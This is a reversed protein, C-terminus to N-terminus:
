RNLHCPTDPDDDGLSDLENLRHLFGDFPASGVVAYPAALLIAQRVQHDWPRVSVAIGKDADFTGDGLIFKRQVAFDISHMRLASQVIMKVAMWASWDPSEMRRAGAYRSFRTNVQPAGNHEWTWHWAVPELDIAGVVPRPKVTQYSVQRAFEFQHDAIFTVDWDRNVASLLAPNNKERQRPDSGPEFKQHAMIRAGFKKVSHLFAQTVDEDDADPGQMVLYDRWKKSVLMQVLADMLQARSPMVHVIEASCVNRRLSDEPASVNFLLVDKGKVAAALAAYSERPADILFFRVGQGMADQVSQAIADPTKATLRLLSFEAGISRRLAKADEIGVQAGAFPHDPTKLVLREFGKVPAYREDDALEVFGIKVQALPATAPTQARSPMCALLSAAMALCANLTRNM